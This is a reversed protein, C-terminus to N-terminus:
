LLAEGRDPLPQLLVADPDDPVAIVRALEARGPVGGEDEEDGVHTGVRREVPRAGM